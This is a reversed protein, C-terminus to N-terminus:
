AETTFDTFYALQAFGTAPVAVYFTQAVRLQRSTTALIICNHYSSTLLVM